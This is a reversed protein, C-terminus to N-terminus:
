DTHNWKIYTEKKAHNERKCSYIVATTRINVVNTQRLAIGLAEVYKKSPLNTMCVYLIGEMEREREIGYDLCVSLSERRRFHWEWADVSFGLDVVDRWWVGCGLRGGEM